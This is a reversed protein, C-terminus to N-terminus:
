KPRRRRSGEDRDWQTLDGRHFRIAAIARTVIVVFAYAILSWWLSPERALRLTARAYGPPENLSSAPYRHRLQLTGLRSRTKIAVLERLGAPAFITFSCSQICRREDASFLLRIYGDDSILDPFEPFRARGEASLGYVGSGILSEGLYPLRTWIDYFARVWRSSNTLDIVPRPAAAFV